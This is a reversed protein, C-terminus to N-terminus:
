AGEGTVCRWVLRRSDSSMAMERLTYTAVVAGTADLTALTAGKEPRVAVDATFIDFAHGTQLTRGSFADELVADAAVPMMRLDVTAGGGAPTYRADAGLGRPSGFSGWARRMSAIARERFADSM